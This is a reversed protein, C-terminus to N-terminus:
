ISRMYQLEKKYERMLVVVGGCLGVCVVVWVCRVAQSPYQIVQGLGGRMMQVTPCLLCCWWGLRAMIYAVGGLLM